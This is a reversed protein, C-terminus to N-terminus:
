AEPMPLPVYLELGLEEAILAVLRDAGEALPSLVRLPRGPFREQLDDFVRRVIAEIGAVEAAVLDRHGTVGVVLPRAAALARPRNKSTIRAVM